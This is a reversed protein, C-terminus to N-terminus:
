YLPDDLYQEWPLEAEYDRMDFARRIARCLTRLKSQEYWDEFFSENDASLAEVFFRARDEAPKDADWEDLMSTQGLVYTDMVRYLTRLLETRLATGAEVAIYANGAVWNQQGPEAGTDAVISISVKGSDCITGMEELMGEPFLSFVSEMEELAAEFVESRFEPTM